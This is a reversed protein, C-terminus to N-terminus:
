ECKEVKYYQKLLKIAKEADAGTVGIRLAKVNFERALQEVFCLVEDDSEVSRAAAFLLTKGDFLKFYGLSGVYYIYLYLGEGVRQYLLPSTYCLHDGYRKNLETAVERPLCMVAIAGGRENSWVAVDENALSVGSMELLKAALAPDFCESPVLVSNDTLLEVEVTAEEPLETPLVDCSFSHGGLQLQISVKKNTTTPNSGTVQRM